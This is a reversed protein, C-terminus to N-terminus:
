SMEWCEKVINELKESGQELPFSENQVEYMVSIADQIRDDHRGMLGKFDNKFFNDFDGIQLSDMTPGEGLRTSLNWISYWNRWLEYHNFSLYSGYVLDDNHKLLKRYLDELPKFQEVSFDNNNFAQLVKPILAKIGDFATCLGRSYLPDIFGYSHPLISWRNGTCSKSSFQIRPETVWPRVVKANKFQERVDPLSKILDIVKNPHNRRFPVKSCQFGVSVIPNTSEPTNNFPIVWLWGGEVIHHLTGHHFKTKFESEIVNDFPEVDIMHTYCTSSNTKVKPITDRLDFIKALPSNSGVADIIYQCRIESGNSLTVRVEEDSKVDTVKTNFLFKSGYKIAANVVYSDVDQRYLHMESRSPNVHQFMEKPNSKKGEEHYVYGFNEKVGVRSALDKFIKDTSLLDVNYYKVLGNWVATLYPIMSEGVSFKPHPTSDVVLVRLGQKSLIASLFSGVLGSGVIIVDINNPINDSDQYSYTSYEEFM